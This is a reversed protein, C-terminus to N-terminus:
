PVPHRDVPRNLWADATVATRRHVSSYQTKGDTHSATSEASLLQDLQGSPRPEKAQVDVAARLDPSLAAVSRPGSLGCMDSRRSSQARCARARM